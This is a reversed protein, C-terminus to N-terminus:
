IWGPAPAMLGETEPFSLLRNMWQVSGGAAGKVLNDIVSFVAVSSGDTSVGLRAFNSGAVDKVRPPEDDVKVFASSEYFRALEARITQEDLSSKSVGQITAHIGRAFPGSHPIFHIEPRVGSAAEAFARMEPVHRHRLPQYAFLNSQRFPHHTTPKPQGGSGTSGTIGAVYVSPEVIQLKLLPVVALLVATTFCGPHGVHPKNGGGADLPLHEPLGQIFEGLLHPAGHGAGYVAEYDEKAAFRFDASADVVRPTLGAGRAGDITEAVLEASAGHNAASFVALEGGGGIEAFVEALEQRSRFVGVDGEGEREGEFTLHPFLSAIDKGAASESVAAAL